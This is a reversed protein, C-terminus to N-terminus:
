EELPGFMTFIVGSVYPYLGQRLGIFEGIRLTDAFDFLSQAYAKKDEFETEAISIDPNLTCFKDYSLNRNKELFNYVTMDPVNPYGHTEHMYKHIYYRIANLILRWDQERWITSDYKLDSVKGMQKLQEELNQLVAIRYANMKRKLFPVVPQLIEFDEAITKLELIDAISDHNFILQVIKPLISSLFADIRFIKLNRLIWRCLMLNEENQLNEMQHITKELLAKAQIRTSPEFYLKALFPLQSKIDNHSKWEETMYPCCNFQILNRQLQEWEKRLTEDDGEFGPHPRLQYVRNLNLFYTYRHSPHFIVALQLFHAKLGEKDEVISPTVDYLGWFSFVSWVQPSKAKQALKKLYIDRGVCNNELTKFFALYMLAEPEEKEKLVNQSLIAERKIPKQYLLCLTQQAQDRTNKKYEKTIVLQRLAKLVMDYDGRLFAIEKLFYLLVRKDKGEQEITTWLDPFLYSKTEYLTGGILCAVDPDFLDPCDMYCQEIARIAGSVIFPHLHSDERYTQLCTLAIKYKEEVTPANYAAKLVAKAWSPENIVNKLCIRIEAQPSSEKFGDLSAQLTFCFLLLTNWLRWSM